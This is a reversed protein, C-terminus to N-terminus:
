SGEGSRVTRGSFPDVTWQVEVVPEGIEEVRSTPLPANDIQWVYAGLFCGMCRGSTWAGDRRVRYLAGTILTPNPM